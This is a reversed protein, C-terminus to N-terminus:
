ESQRAIEAWTNGSSVELLDHTATVHAVAYAQPLPAVRMTAVSASESCLRVFRIKDIEEEVVFFM